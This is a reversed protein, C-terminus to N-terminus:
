SFQKLASRQIEYELTQLCILQAQESYSVNIILLVCNKKKELFHLREENLNM